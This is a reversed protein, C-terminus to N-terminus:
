GALVTTGWCFGPSLSIQEDGELRLAYSLPLLGAAATLGMLYMFERRNLNM